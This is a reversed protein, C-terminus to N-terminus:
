RRCCGVAVAISPWSPSPGPRSPYAANARIRSPSTSWSGCSAPRSFRRSAAPNSVQEFTAFGSANFRHVWDYAATFHCGVREAAEVILRGRHVEDIVRYRQHVRASLSLDKLKSRLLRQEARTVARLRIPRAVAAGKTPCWCLM